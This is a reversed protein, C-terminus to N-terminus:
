IHIGSLHSILSGRVPHYNPEEPVRIICIGTAAPAVEYEVLNSSRHLTKIFKNTM